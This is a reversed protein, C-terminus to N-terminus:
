KIRSWVAVYFACGHMCYQKSKYHVLGERNLEQLYALATRWPIKTKNALQKTDLIGIPVDESLFYERFRKRRDRRYELTNKKM